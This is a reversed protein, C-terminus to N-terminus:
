EALMRIMADRTETEGYDIQLVRKSTFWIKLRYPHTEAGSNEWEILEVQSTNIVYEGTRVFKPM